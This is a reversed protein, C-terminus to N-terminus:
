ILNLSQLTSQLNPDTFNTYPTSQMLYGNTIVMRFQPPLYSILDKCAQISEKESPNLYGGGTGQQPLSQQPNGVTNFKYGPGICGKLWQHARPSRHIMIGNRTIGTTPDFLSAGEFSFNNSSNGTVIFSSGYKPHNSRALVSYEGQPICSINTQNNKWPLESTAFRKILTSEDNNYVELIGLTQFEDQYIRHLRILIKDKDEVEGTKSRTEERPTIAPPQPKLDEYKKNNAKPEKDGAIWSLTKLETTWRNNKITHSIGQVIYNLNKPYSNPLIDDPSIDFKEYLKFGSLGKIDVTLEVPIFFPSSIKKDKVDQQMEFNLVSELNKSQQEIAQSSPLKSNNLGYVDAFYKSVSAFADRYTTEFSSSNSVKNIENVNYGQPSHLALRDRTGENLKQYSAVQSGVSAGDPNQAAIAVLNQIKPFIKTNLNFSNVFTGENNHLYNINLTTSPNRKGPIFNNDYIKIINNTEDYSVIFDNLYGTASRVGELTKELFTMLDINGDEDKNKLLLNRIFEINVPIEMIDAKYQNVKFKQFQLAQPFKGVTNTSTNKLEVQLICKNPDASAQLPHSLMWSKRQEFDISIIQDNTGTPTYLLCNNSIFKFLRGLSVYFQGQESITSPEGNTYLVAFTGEYKGEGIAYKPPTNQNVGIKDKLHLQILNLFLEIVSGPKSFSPKKDFKDIGSTARNVTGDANNRKDRQKNLESGETEEQILSQENESLTFERLQSASDLNLAPVNVVLSDILGGRSILSLNISYTGNSRYSWNFNSVYGIFGDYNYDTQKRVKDIKQSISLFTQHGKMFGDFAMNSFPPNTIFNGKNDYYLSHGWEVLMSYGLRLYLTEILKFQSPNNAVLSVNAKRIAGRNLAQVEISEIGPPGSYGYKNIDGLGYQSINGGILGNNKALAQTPLSPSYSTDGTPNGNQDFLPKDDNVGIYPGFLVLNKALQNGTGLVNDNKTLNTSSAIRMWSNNANTYQIIDSTLQPTGLKQQRIKIQAKLTDDIDAGIINESKAM